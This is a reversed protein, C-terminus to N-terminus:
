LLGALAEILGENSPDSAMADVHMGAEAAAAATKPGICVVYPPGPDELGLTAADGVIAAFNRVTSGSTFLLADAEGARIAAVADAPPQGQVTRYAVVEDPIWGATELVRLMERPAAEVRPILIRGPGHGLARALDEATHSEPVVDARIGRQALLRATVNGVAGVKVRAFARADLSLADIRGFFSRAGNASTFVVWGYLGEAMKRVARDVETWSEPELVAIVPLEIVRAGQSTLAAVLDDSQHTARTVAVTRGFLPRQEFWALADRLRVVEGVVVISPPGFGEATARQAIGALDSVLVRQRPTTGWQILACPEDAGRGAEILARTMSALTKMGMLLVLTDAGTAMARWREAADGEPVEHAALVTVSSARGGYTVPIGAYSPVAIASSIGPVVEFPIGAAALAQGEDAGRGFIYPDGGKLRVVRRGARAAAVLAADIAAQAIAGPGSAKGVLVKEADEPAKSLLAPAVLRDYFVVDAGALLELARATVLGPDGPGAGVLYVWGPRATM